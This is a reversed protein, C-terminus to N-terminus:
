LSWPSRCYRVSPHLPLAETMTHQPLPLHCNEVRRALVVAEWFLHKFDYVEYLIGFREKYTRCFFPNTVGTPDIIDDKRLKPIGLFGKSSSAGESVEANGSCLSSSSKPRSAFPRHPALRSLPESSYALKVEPRRLWM